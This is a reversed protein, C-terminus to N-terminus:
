VCAGCGERVVKCCRQAGVRYVYGGSVVLVIFFHWDANKEGLFMM